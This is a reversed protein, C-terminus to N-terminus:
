EFPYYKSVLLIFKAEIQRVRERTLEYPRGAEELTAGRARATVVKWYKDLSEGKVRGGYMINFQVRTPFDVLVYPHTVLNSKIAVMGASQKLNL